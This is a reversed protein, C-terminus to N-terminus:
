LRQNASINFFRQNVRINSIKVSKHLYACIVLVWKLFRAPGNSNSGAQPSSTSATSFKETTKKFFVERSAASARLIVM